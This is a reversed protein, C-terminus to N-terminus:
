FNLQRTWYLMADPPTQMWHLGCTGDAEQLYELELSLKQYAWYASEFTPFKIVCSSTEGDIGRRRKGRRHGSVDLCVYLDPHLIRSLDYEIATTDHSSAVDELYLKTMAAAKQTRILHHDLVMGFIRLPDAVAKAASTAEKYLIIGYLPTRPRQWRQRRFNSSPSRIKKRNDIAKRGPDLEPRQHFIELAEITGCRGFADKLRDVEVDIPLNDIFVMRDTPAQAPFLDNRFVKRGGEQPLVIQFRAQPPILSGEGSNEQRGIEMAEFVTYRRPRVRETTTMQPPNISSVGAMVGDFTELISEEQSVGLLDNQLTRGTLEDHQNEELTNAAKQLLEQVNQFAQVYTEQTEEWKQQSQCVVADDRIMNVYRQEEMNMVPDTTMIHFFKAFDEAVMHLRTKPVFRQLNTKLIRLEQQVHQQHQNLRHRKADDELDHRPFSNTHQSNNHPAEQETGIEPVSGKGDTNPVNCSDAFDQVYKIANLYQPLPLREQMKKQFEVAENYQQEESKTEFMAALAPVRIRSMYEKVSLRPLTNDVAKVTNEIDIDDEVDDDDVHSTNHHSIGKKKGLKRRIKRNSERSWSMPHHIALTRAHQLLKVDSVIQQQTLSNKSQIDGNKTQISGANIERSDVMRLFFRQRIEKPVKRTDLYQLVVKWLRRQPDENLMSKAKKQQQQQQQYKELEKALGEIWKFKPVEFQYSLQLFDDELVAKPTPTSQLKLLSIQRQRHQRRKRYENIRKKRAHQEKKGAKHHDADSVHSDFKENLSNSYKDGSKRQDTTTTTKTTSLVKGDTPDGNDSKLEKKNDKNTDEDAATPYTSSSRFQQHPPNTTCPHVLLCCNPRRRSQQQISHFGEYQHISSFAVFSQGHNFHSLFSYVNNTKMTGVGTAVSLQTPRCWQKQLHRFTGLKITSSAARM